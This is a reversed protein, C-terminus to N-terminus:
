GLFDVGGLFEFHGVVMDTDGKVFARMFTKYFPQFLEPILPLAM